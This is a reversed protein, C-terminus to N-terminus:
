FAAPDLVAIIDRSQQYLVYGAAALERCVEIDLGARQQVQLWRTVSTEPDPFATAVNRQYTAVLTMDSEFWILLPLGVGGGDFGRQQEHAMWARILALDHGEIDIKLIATRELMAPRTAVIDAVAFCPIASTLWSVGNAGRPEDINGLERKWHGDNRGNNGHVTAAQDAHHFIITKDPGCRGSNAVAAGNILSVRKAGPRYTGVSHKLDMFNVPDAEVLTVFWSPAALVRELLGDPDGDCAGIDAAHAGPFARVMADVLDDLPRRHKLSNEIMLPRGAFNKHGMAATTLNEGTSSNRIVIAGVGSADEYGRNLWPEWKAM